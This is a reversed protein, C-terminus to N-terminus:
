NNNGYNGMTVSYCYRITAVMTIMTISYSYGITALVTVMTLWLLIQNHNGYNCNITFNYFDRIRTVMTVKVEKRKEKDVEDKEEWM